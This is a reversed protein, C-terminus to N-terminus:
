SSFAPVNRDAKELLENVWAPESKLLPAPRAKPKYGRRDHIMGLVLVVTLGEGLLCFFRNPLMLTLQGFCGNVSMMVVIGPMRSLRGAFFLFRGITMRM